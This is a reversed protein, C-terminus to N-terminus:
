RHTIKVGQYSKAFVKFFNDEALYKTNYSGNVAEDIEKITLGKEKITDLVSFFKGHNANECFVLMNARYYVWDPFELMNEKGANIGKQTLAYGWMPLTNKNSNTNKYVLYGNKVLGSISRIISAKKARTDANLEFCGGAPCTVGDSKKTLQKYKTFEIDFIIHAALQWKIHAMNETCIKKSYYAIGLIKKQNESLGRGM